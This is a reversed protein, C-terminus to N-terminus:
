EEPHDTVPGLTFRDAVISDHVQGAQDLRCVTQSLTAPTTVLQDNVKFQLRGAEQPHDQFYTLVAGCGADDKPTMQVRARGDDKRVQLDVQDMLPTWIAHTQQKLTELNPTTQELAAVLAPMAAAGQKFAAQETTRYHQDLCWGMGCLGGLMMLVTVLPRWESTAVRSPPRQERRGRRPVGVSSEPRLQMVDNAPFVQDLNMTSVDVLRAQALPTAYKAVAQALHQENIPRGEQICLARVKQALMAPPVTTTPDQLDLREMEDLIQHIAIWDSSM